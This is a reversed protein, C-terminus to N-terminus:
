SSPLPYPLPVPEADLPQEAPATDDVAGLGAAEESEGAALTTVALLECRGDPRQAAEVVHLVRGDALRQSDGPALRVPSRTVFRQLRRKVRGRYHARAIVEQGTYCGKDFAIADLLDLNLMQAVFAESTAGHVQPLGAEIDLRRWLERDAPVADPVIAPASTDVPMILLWRLPEGPMRVALSGDALACSGGVDQPLATPVAASAPAVLGRVLWSGSADAISVKSRLIYKSLRTAVQAALERPLIALLEQPGRQVLRLLAITRGQPNHYGALQSRTPGLRGVDSSLQGQLFAVADTGRVSLAGLDALTIQQWRAADPTSSSMPKRSRRKKRTFNSQQPTRAHTTPQQPNQCVQSRHQFM